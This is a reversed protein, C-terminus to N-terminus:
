GRCNWIVAVFSLVGRLLLFINMKGRETEREVMVVGTRILDDLIVFRESICALLIPEETANRQELFETV